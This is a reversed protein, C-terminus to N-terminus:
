GKKAHPEALGDILAHLAEKIQSADCGMLVGDELADACLTEIEHINENLVKIKELCSVPKGDSQRWVPAGKRAAKPERAKM